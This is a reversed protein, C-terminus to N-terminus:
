KKKKPTIWYRKEFIAYNFNETLSDEKEPTYSRDIEHHHLMERENIVFANFTDFYILNHVYITDGPFVPITDKDPFLMYIKYHEFNEDIYDINTSARLCNCITDPTIILIEASKWFPYIPMQNLVFTDTPKEVQKKKHQCLGSYQGFLCIM